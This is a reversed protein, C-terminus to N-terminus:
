EQFGVLTRLTKALFKYQGRNPAYLNAFTYTTNAITGKLFLFRGEPDTMVGTETFPLHRHLLIATGRSKGGQFDSYYGKPYHQNTLTPRSGARFHTEQLFVISAHAARFDKHAGARKEPTNLGRANLTFITLPAPQLSM